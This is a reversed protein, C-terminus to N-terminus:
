VELQHYNEPNDLDDVQWSFAVLPASNLLIEAPPEGPTVIQKFSVAWADYGDTGRQFISPGSRQECPMECNRGHFGWRNCDALRELCTALNVAELAAHKRFRGVVAHLSVTVAHTYRGDNQKVGPTTRELEILVTAHRVTGDWEDYNAVDVGLGAAHITEGIAFFLDSVQNLTKFSM